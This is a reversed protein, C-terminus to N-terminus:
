RKQKGMVEEGSTRGQDNATLTVGRPTHKDIYNYDSVFGESTAKFLGEFASGLGGCVCREGGWM